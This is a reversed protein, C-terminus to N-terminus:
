NILGEIAVLGLAGALTLGAGWLIIGVIIWFLLRRRPVDFIIGLVTGLPAGVFLPALLGLGVVGYSAWIRYIRSHQSDKSNGGYRQMLWTRLREGLMVVLLVGFVAGFISVIGTVIPPIGLALGAPIAVWLEIVALVFVTLLPIVLEM